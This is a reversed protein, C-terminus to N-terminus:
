ILDNENHKYQRRIFSTSEKRSWNITAAEPCAPPWAPPRKAPLHHHTQGRTYNSWQSCFFQTPLNTQKKGVYSVFKHIEKKKRWRRRSIESDNERWHFKVDTEWKLWAGQIFYINGRGMLAHLEENHHCCSSSFCVVPLCSRHHSALFYRKKEKQSSNWLTM